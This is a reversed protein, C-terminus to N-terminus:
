AKLSKFAAVEAQVEIMRRAVPAAALDAATAAVFPGGTGESAAGVSKAATEPDIGLRLFLRAASASKAKAAMAAEDLLSLQLTEFRGFRQRMDGLPHLAEAATAFERAYRDVFPEDNLGTKGRPFDPNEGPAGDTQAGGFGPLFSQRFFQRLRLHRQVLTNYDGRVEDVKALYAQQDLLLKGNLTDIAGRLEAVREEYGLRAQYNDQERLVLLQDNFAFNITAYSSWFLAAALVMLTFIQSVPSLSFYHVDSGSKLYVQRARFIRGFIGSRRRRRKRSAKSETRM